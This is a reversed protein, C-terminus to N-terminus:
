RCGLRQSQSLSRERGLGRLCGGPRKPKHLRDGLPNAFFLVPKGAEPNRAGLHLNLAGADSQTHGNIGDIRNVFAQTTVNFLQPGQPSAAINPLYAHDGRIVISQLQNPFASTDDPIGDNNSDVKFGTVQAALKIAGVPRYDSIKKSDTDIELRCVLGERGNDDGQKGGENKTFSLFRTVYLQSNDQTVALGRPQFRREHDPDNCVSNRLDV